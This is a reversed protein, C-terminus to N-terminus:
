TQASGQPPPGKRESKDGTYFLWLWAILSGGAVVVLMALTVAIEVPTTM